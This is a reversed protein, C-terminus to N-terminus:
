NRREVRKRGRGNRERDSFKMSLGFLPPAKTEPFEMRPYSVRESQAEHYGKPLSPFIHETPETQFVVDVAIAWGGGVVNRHRKGRKFTLSPDAAGFPRTIKACRQRGAQRQLRAEGGTAEDSECSRDPPFMALVLPKEGPERGVRYWGLVVKDGDGMTSPRVM